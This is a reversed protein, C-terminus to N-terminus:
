EKELGRSSSSLEEVYEVKWEKMTTEVWGARLIKLLSM